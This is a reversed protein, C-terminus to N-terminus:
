KFITKLEPKQKLNKDFIGFDGHYDWVAWGINNKAFLNTIDKYWNVRSDDDALDIAGFESCYTQVNNKTAFNIVHKLTESLRKIDLKVNSYIMTQKKMDDNPMANALTTLDPTQAPYKMSLNLLKMNEAWHAKQHTFIFPEYFHFSYIVNKDNFVKLDSFTYPSQWSNSGVFIVRESDINRIANYGIEAIINYDENNQATPENLLEFAVHNYNDEKLETTLFEWINAFRKQLDNRNWICNEEPTSFNMGATNHLDLLLSLNCKKAWHCAKKIYLLGSELMLYPESKSEILKHDIPLRVHDAGISAILEFDKETIATELHNKNSIDTQSLWHSLNVGKIFSKM